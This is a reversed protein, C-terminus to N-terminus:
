GVRYDVTAQLMADVNEDKANLPCDCGSSLMLGTPGVDDILKICYDYVDSASEFALMSAPVDGLLCMRDDLVERAKRIDTFGDLMLVCKRAPLTKLTELEAEWCSDFHLVPTVGAEITKLIMEELYPWVFEMWTDHSMLQPAARWGGCWAGFFNPNLGDLFNKLMFEWATDMAKKLLEPEEVTDIFFDVMGRAGCFAEIPTGGSVGNMVPVGAEERMRQIATPMYSLYRQTAPQNMPDGVREKMYRAVWPGYGEDIITQYDEEKMCQKEHMQWLEDDPLDRGPIKVEALWLMSLIYPCFCPSHISDVEPHASCFEIAATVSRDYDVVAESMKLGQRHPLYAPGNWSFPIKDVKEMRVAKQTRILHDEYRQNMIAGKALLVRDTTFFCCNYSFLKIHCPPLIKGIRM